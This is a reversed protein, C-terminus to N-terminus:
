LPKFIMWYLSILPLVTAVTGFVIWLKGLVWYSDPINGNIDFERAMRAQKIQVPILVAVWIVGSAIFLWMGWALWRICWYDMNHVTANTIGTGLILAAGGATFVFDTLTVQRQAFAIVKPNKTRDAMVKWWGTVIINGLFIVAGLIHLSKLTLYTDSM